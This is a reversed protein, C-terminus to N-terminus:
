TSCAGGMQNKEIHDGSCTYLDNFEEKHLTRWEGTVEKEKPGLIRRLVTNELVKLRPVEM